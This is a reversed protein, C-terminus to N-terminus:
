MPAGGSFLQYKKLLTVEKRIDKRMNTWVLMSMPDQKPNRSLLEGFMILSMKPGLWQIVLHWYQLRAPIPDGPPKVLDKPVGRDLLSKALETRM